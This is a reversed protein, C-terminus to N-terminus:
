SPAHFLPPATLRRREGRKPRDELQQRGPAQRFGLRVLAAWTEEECIAHLGCMLGPNQPYYIAHAAAVWSRLLRENDEPSLFERADIYGYLKGTHLAHRYQDGKLAEEENM